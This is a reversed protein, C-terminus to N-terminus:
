VSMPSWFVTPSNDCATAVSVAPDVPQLLLHVPEVALDIPEVALNFSDAMRDVRRDNHQGGNSRHPEPDQIRRAVLDHCDHRFRQESRDVLLRRFGSRIRGADGPTEMWM